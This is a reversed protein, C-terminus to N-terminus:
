PAPSTVESPAEPSTAGSPPESPLPQVQVGDFLFSPLGITVTVSSGPDVETGATPDQEVVRLIGEETPGWAVAFQLEAKRLANFAELIRMGILDPVAVRTPEPEPREVPPPEPTAPTEPAPPQEGGDTTDAPPVPAIVAAPGSSVTITVTAGEQVVTGAAPAQTIVVGPAVDSSTQSLESAKLGASVLVDNADGSSLGTVNPVAGEKPGTSIELDVASAVAVEEAGDPSQTVVTGEPVDTSSIGTVEGVRLGVIALEAEADSASMGVVDPVSALPLEAVLLDVKAGERVSAGPEPSQSTVTGPAVALTADPSALGVVLGVAELEASAEQQTLGTVDPVTAQGQLWFFAALVLLAAVVGAIIWLTRRNQASGAGSGAISTQAGGPAAIDDPTGSDTTGPADSM